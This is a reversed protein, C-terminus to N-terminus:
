DVEKMHDAQREYLARVIEEIRPEEVQIDRLGLHGLFVALVQPVPLADRLVRYAHIPGIREVLQM